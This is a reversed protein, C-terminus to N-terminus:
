RHHRLQGLAKFQKQCFDCQQKLAMRSKAVIQLPQSSDIVLESVGNHNESDVDDQSGTPDDPVSEDTASPCQESDRRFLRDLASGQLSTEFRSCRILM